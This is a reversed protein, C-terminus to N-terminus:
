HQAEITSLKRWRDAAAQSNSRIIIISFASLFVHRSPGTSNDHRLTSYDHRLHCMVGAQVRTFWASHDDEDVRRTIDSSSNTGRTM